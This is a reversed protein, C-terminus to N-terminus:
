RVVNGRNSGSVQVVGVLELSVGYTSLFPQEFQLLVPYKLVAPLWPSVCVVTLLLPPKM